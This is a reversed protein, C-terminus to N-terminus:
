NIDDLYNDLFHFTSFVLDSGNGNRVSAELKALRSFIERHQSDIEAIGINFSKKWNIAM